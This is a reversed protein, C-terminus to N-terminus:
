TRMCFPGAGLDCDDRGPLPVREYRCERNLGRLMRGPHAAFCPVEPALIKRANKKRPCSAYPVILCRSRCSRLPLRPDICSAPNAAAEFFKKVIRDELSHFSIVALVGGPLLLSGASELARKLQELEQNVHIRIAQFIRTAPHQASDKKNRPLTAAILDALQKTRLIPEKTRVKEIAKAAKMAFREEGLDKFVKAMEAADARAIWEAATEGASTDMRMDLPGDFRFSFGREPDDIQPSSVGIDLFIGTVKDIGIKALEEKMSAFPAHIIQFRPDQIQAAAKVAEEDRDFAILRGQPSLKELILRSHGGRGFTGDVYVGNPDTVLLRPSEEALVPRHVLVEAQM